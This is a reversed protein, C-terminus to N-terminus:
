NEFRVHYNTHRSESGNYPVYCCGHSPHVTGPIVGGEFVARGVYLTEGGDHGGQVASDPFAGDKSKKWKGPKRFRESSDLFLAFM